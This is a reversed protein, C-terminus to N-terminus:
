GSTNHLFLGYEGTENKSACVCESIIGCWAGVYIMYRNYVYMVVCFAFDTSM